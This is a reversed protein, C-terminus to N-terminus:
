HHCGNDVRHALIMDTNFGALKGEV